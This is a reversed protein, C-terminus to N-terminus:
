INPRRTILPQNKALRSFFYMWEGPVSRLEPVELSRIGIVSVIGLATERVLRSLLPDPTFSSGSMSDVSVIRVSVSTGEMLNDCKYIGMATEDRLFWIGPSDGLKDPSINDDKIRFFEWARNRPLAM